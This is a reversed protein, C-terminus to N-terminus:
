LVDKTIVGCDQLVTIITKANAENVTEAAAELKRQYSLSWGAKHAFARVSLKTAARARTLAEGDLKYRTVVTPFLTLDLVQVGGPKSYRNHFCRRCMAARRDKSVVWERSSLRLQGCPGPCVRTPVLENLVALRTEAHKEQRYAAVDEPDEWDCKRRIEREHAREAREADDLQKRVRKFQNDM